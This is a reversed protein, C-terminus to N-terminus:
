PMKMAEVAQITTLEIHRTIQVCTEAIDRSMAAKYIAAHEAPTDRRGYSRRRSLLRYREHHMYIQDRLELLRPSNAASVIVDHFLRNCRELEELSGEKASLKEALSLSRYADALESKWRDGGNKLSKEIAGCELFIRTRGLDLADSESVGRVRFGRQSQQVVLGEGALRALAERIPATGFAYRDRIPIVKM